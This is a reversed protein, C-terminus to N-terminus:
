LKDISVSSIVIITVSNIKTEMIHKLIGIDSLFIVVNRYIDIDCVM